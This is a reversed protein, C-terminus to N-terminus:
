EGEKVIYQLHHIDKLLEFTLPVDGVALVASRLKIWQDQNRCLHFIANSVTIATSDHGALFIHLIQSRLEVRDDDEKVMEELLVHRAGSGADEESPYLEIRGEGKSLLWQSRYKLAKDVYRDAFAHATAIADRWKRSRHLFMLRGLQIRQGM